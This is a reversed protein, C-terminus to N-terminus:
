YNYIYIYIWIFICCWTKPAVGGGKVASHHNRVSDIDDGGGGVYYGCPGLFWCSFLSNLSCMDMIIKLALSSSSWMILNFVGLWLASVVCNNM